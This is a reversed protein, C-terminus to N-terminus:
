QRATKTAGAHSEDCLVVEFWTLVRDEVVFGLECVVSCLAPTDFSCAGVVGANETDNGWGGPGVTGIDTESDAVTNVLVFIEVLEIEYYKDSIGFHVVFVIVALENECLTADAEGPLDLVSRCAVM